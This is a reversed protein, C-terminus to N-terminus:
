SAKQAIEHVVSDSATTLPPLAYAMELSIEWQDVIDQTSGGTTNGSTDARDTYMSIDAIAGSGFPDAQVGLSGVYGDENVGRRNLPENYSFGALMGKPMWLSAGNAYNSDIVDTTVTLDFDTNQFATNANNASGQNVYYELQRAIQLDAIVDYFGGMLRAALFSKAFQAFLAKNALSIELAYTPTTTGNWTGANAAAVQPDMVTNSLQCRNAYVFALATDDHRKRLNKWKMEYLNNFLQQYQFISNDALKRPLSFLEVHKVYVLTTKSSDGYSGTHRAVKATASGPTINSLYNIEVTRLPSSRLDNANPISIESNKLALEMVTPQKRRQEPAQYKDTVISQGKALVGLAYNSM